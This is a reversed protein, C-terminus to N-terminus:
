TTIMHKKAFEKTTGIKKYPNFINRPDFIKKIEEFIHYIEKGFEQQLYPSRILGDNHEATISGGYELVLNYVKDTVPYIKDREETKKLDMLPIIHLNGDGLHGSITYFIKSENLIKTLKPLFEPLKEPLVIIDDVFPTSHRDKIKERLLKFTDRRLKWYKDRHIKTKAYTGIMKYKKIIKVLDHVETTLESNEDGEFEVLVILKPMGHLAILKIEPLFLKITSFIDHVGLISAMERAYRLYIKFTHDDTIELSTPKLALIEQVFHPLDKLSYLFIVYLKERKPKPILKLKAETVFGLTGQAGCILQTLDLSEGDYADWINYGSSNKSVHPRTKKIVDQNTSLLKYVKRYLEGEFNKKLMKAQLQKRGLKELYYENGDTLIVKLGLIYKNTKGYQLTKEGGSNNNVIGGLACLDKSAPYPPYFENKDLLEKEFDRFYVGPEVVAHDKAVTRINNFHKTFDLLISDTLPGGSMDTGASRATLSLKPHKEKNKHVYRVLNTIDESDHPAVVVEPTIEFISTDRSYKKLNEQDTIIEGKVITKLEAALNEAM